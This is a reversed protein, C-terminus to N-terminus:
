IHRKDIKIHVYHKLVKLVYEKNNKSAHGANYASIVKYTDHYKNYLQKLYKAAFWANIEPDLLDNIHDVRRNVKVLKKHRKITILEHRYRVFGLQKATNAQIQFLGYSKVNIGLAKQNPTGDNKNLAKAKCRSEVECLAYLLGPDLRFASAANTIYYPFMSSNGSSYKPLALLSLVILSALIIKKM